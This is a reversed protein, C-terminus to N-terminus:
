IRLLIQGTTRAKEKTAYSVLKYRRAMHACDLEKLTAQWRREERRTAGSLEGTVHGDSKENKIGPSTNEYFRCDFV